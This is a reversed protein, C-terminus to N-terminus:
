SRRAKRPPPPLGADEFDAEEILRDVQEKTVVLGERNTLTIWGDKMVFAPGAEEALGRAAQTLGKRALESLVQGAPDNAEPKGRLLEEPSRAAAARAEHAGIARRVAGLRVLKDVIVAWSWISAALLLLLVGKVVIDADLFLTVISITPPPPM